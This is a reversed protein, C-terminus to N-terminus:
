AVATRRVVERLRKAVGTWRTSIARRASSPLSPPLSQGIQRGLVQEGAAVPMREVVPPHLAVDARPQALQVLALAPQAEDPRAAAVPHHQGGVAAGAAEADVGDLLLREVVEQGARRDQREAGGAAVQGALEALVPVDRLRPLEVPQGIPGRGLRDGAGGLGAAAAADGKGVVIRHDEQLVGDVHRLGAPRAPM